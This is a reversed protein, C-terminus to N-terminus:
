RTLIQFEQTFHPFGLALLVMLTLGLTLLIYFVAWLLIEKKNMKPLILGMKRMRRENIIELAGVFTIFVGIFFLKFIFALFMVLALGCFMFILGFKPSISCVISRAVRGGDMPAVPIMNFLNILGNIFAIAAFIPNRTVMLVALFVLNLLFGWVPGMIGIFAEEKRSKIEGSPIIIAGLFPIFYMGQISIGSRRMAWIHGLEHVMVCIILVFSFLWSTWLAMLVFFAFFLGVQILLKKHRRLNM